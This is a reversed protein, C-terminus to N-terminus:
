RPVIPDLFEVVYDHAFSKGGDFSVQARYRQGAACRLGAPRFIVASGGGFRDTSVTQYDIRLPEGIPVYLQDLEVVRVVVDESKPVSGSTLHLSWAHRSGFMDTPLFGRPPYYVTDLGSPTSGSNDFAWMASYRGAVGFGTRRLAPSLCWRRHGVRDINSPDSDDMYSDVSGEVGGSALNSSKAGLAGQEFREDDFGPPKSPTHSLGGNAQCVESAADCLDNWEPNLELDQWRLGCLARYAKLRRLAFLRKESHQDDLDPELPQLAEELTEVLTTRGTPFPEIADLRVLEGKSWVQSSVREGGLEVRAKGDRVGDRYKCRWELLVAEDEADVSEDGAGRPRTEQYDGHLVGRRYNARVFDAGDPHYSRYRGHLQGQRYNAEVVKTGGVYERFSGHLEGDHYNAQLVLESSEDFRKLEGELVDAEYAAESEVSGDERFITTVGEKRGEDDVESRTHM